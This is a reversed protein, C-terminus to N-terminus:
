GGELHKGRCVNSVVQDHGYYSDYKLKCEKEDGCKRRCRMRDQVGQSFLMADRRKSDTSMVQYHGYYSDYKLKCEKDDGCKRRCRM